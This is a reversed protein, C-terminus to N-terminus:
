ACDRCLLRDADALQSERKAMYCSRCVFEGDRLGEIGDEDDDDDDLTVASVAAEDEDDFAADAPVAPVVADPDEDAEVGEELPVEVDDE